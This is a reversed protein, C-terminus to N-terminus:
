GAARRPFTVLMGQSAVFTAPAFGTFYRVTGGADEAAKLLIAEADAYWQWEHGFDTNDLYISGSPTVLGLSAQACEPRAIGDVIVLDFSRPRCNPPNSYRPDDGRFSDVKLSTLGRARALSTVKSAWEEDHEVSNVFACRRALWLTSMGSGFELVKSKPHLVGELAKRAAAPIWPVEPRHGFVERVVAGSLIAPLGSFERWGVFNGRMDHFRSRRWIDARWVNTSRSL